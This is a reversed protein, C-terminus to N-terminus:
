RCTIRAQCPATARADAVGQAACSSLGTAAVVALLTGALACRLHRRARTRRSLCRPAPVAALEETPTLDRWDAFPAGEDRPAPRAPHLVSRRVPVTPIVATEAPRDDAAAAAERRTETTSMARTYAPMRLSHLGSRASPPTVHAVAGPSPPAPRGSCPSGAAAGSRRPLYRPPAPRPPPLGKPRHRDTSRARGRAHVGSPVHVTPRDVTRSHPRGPSRVALRLPPPAGRACATLRGTAPRERLPGRGTLLDRPERLPPRDPAPRDVRRLARSPLAAPSGQPLAPRSGGTGPSRAARAPM